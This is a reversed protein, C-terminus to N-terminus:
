ALGEEKNKKEIDKFIYLAGASITYIICAPGILVIFIMTTENWLLLVIELAVIFTLALSRGIYRTYISASNKLTNIITNEYRAVLAYAYMFGSIMVAVALFGMILFYIPNGEVAEFLQFDLYIAYAILMNLLGIIVGQKWNRKFAEWFAKFIYGEANDSMKLGVSFAAVTSAGITVIPLSFVLWLFNLKVIDWFTNLFRYLPSDVSFFKM